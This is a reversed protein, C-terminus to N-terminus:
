LNYSIVKEDSVNAEHRISEATTESRSKGRIGVIVKAGLKALEIASV